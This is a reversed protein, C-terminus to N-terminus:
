KIKEQRRGVARQLVRTLQELEIPKTIHEDFGAEFARQRDTEQGFGTLAILYTRDCIRHERARRAVGYGDLEPLGIDILAIDPREIEIATLASLGDAAVGVQYGESELLIQTTDRLYENDEVLLIRLDKTFPHPEQEPRTPAKKTTLPLRVLFETGKGRGASEV